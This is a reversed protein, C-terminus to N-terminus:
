KTLIDKLKTLAIKTEATTEGLLSAIEQVVRMQKDIVKDTIDATQMKLTENENNKIELETIDKMIAMVIHYEKNYIITQEVYREYEALYLKEDNAALYRGNDIAKIYDAPNLINVVPMNKIGAKDIIRFMKLASNNMQQINLNEDMVIIANPTNNIITDSFSEAKDKLYPLCMSLDAKGECIAIAKERCTNYGCTGCNLEHEPLTKGMKILMQRIASEGPKQQSIGLYNIEKDLSIDASVEFEGYDRGSFDHIKTYNSIPSDYGNTMCPGGTCSNECASMEIFLNRPTHAELERLVKICLDISDLAIYKIGDQKEMCDIIGGKVPFLRASRNDASITDNISETEENLQIKENEFWLDLEEYTLVCDVFGYRKAEDKKSLCPGIFVVKAQPDLTKIYKAHALMPSLTHALHPLLTPFYKQILLNVTHCCSSIIFDDPNSRLMNEYEKKVIQAGVATEEVSYFGLKKLKESLSAINEAKYQAIISPAVSAYVHANQAILEKAIDTDNRIQKANQPCVVFCRGCMICEDNIINAQHDSFKISKVPCERICKYCNKCNSKKLQLISDM